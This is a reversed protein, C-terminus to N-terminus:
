QTTPEEFAIPAVLIGAKSEIPPGDRYTPQIYANPPVFNTLPRGEEDGLQALTLRHQRLGELGVWYIQPLLMLLMAATALRPVVSVGAMFTFPLLIIPIFIVYRAHTLANLVFTVNFMLLTFLSAYGVFLLGFRLGARRTLRAFYLGCAVLLVIGIFQLGHRAPVVILSGSGDLIQVIYTLFGYRGRGLGIHHSGTQHFALRVALWSAAPIAAVVAARWWGNLSGTSGIFLMLAAAAVFPVGLNHSLVLLTGLVATSLLLMNERGQPRSLLRWLCLLFVPLFTLLLNHGLVPVEHACVFVAAFVSVLIAASTSVALGSERAISTTVRAWLWSQVVILVGNAVLLSWGTPGLVLTWFAMYLSYLPPWAAIPHGSFYTYGRGSVLSVAGQWAAWSDPNVSIGKLHTVAFCL